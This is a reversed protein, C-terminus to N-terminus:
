AGRDLFVTHVQHPDFYKEIIEMVVEKDFPKCSFINGYFSSPEDCFHITISSTEILQVLTIGALHGTGFRKILPEGYEVMEIKQILETKFELIKDPNSVNDNCDTADIILEWGWTM